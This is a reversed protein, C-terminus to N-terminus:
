RRTALLRNVMATNWKRGRKRIGANNLEAAMLRPTPSARVRRIVETEDDDTVVVMRQTRGDGGVVRRYRKGYPLGGIHEDGRRRKETLAAKVRQGLVIAEKQADVIAQIFSIRDNNYTIADQQSYLVVGRNVLEECWELYTVINRSLRDVRWVMIMDGPNAAEGIDALTRPIRRYASQSISFVRTRTYEPPITGRLAMEQAQLSLSTCSAQDKTSVRCFLYATKIGKLQLYESILPGTNCDSDKVWERTRDNAWCVRFEFEGQANVRHNHISRIECDTEPESEPEPEPEPAQQIQLENALYEQLQGVMDAPVELQVTHSSM